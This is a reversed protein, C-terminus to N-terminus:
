KLNEKHKYNKFPAWDPLYGLRKVSFRYTKLLTTGQASAKDCNFLDPCEQALKLAINRKRLGVVYCYDKNLNYMDALFNFETKLLSKM